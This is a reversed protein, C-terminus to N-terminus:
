TTYICEVNGANLIINTASIGTFFLSCSCYINMFCTDRAEHVLQCLNALDILQIYLTAIHMYRSLVNSIEIIYLQPFSIIIVAKGRNKTYNM